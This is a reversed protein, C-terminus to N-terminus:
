ENKVDPMHSGLFADLAAVDYGDPGQGGQWVVLMQAKSVVYLREPFAAFPECCNEDFSDVCPVFM